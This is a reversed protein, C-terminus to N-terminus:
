GGQDTCAGVIAEALAFHPLRITLKTFSERADTQVPCRVSGLLTDLAAFGADCDSAATALSHVVKDLPLTRGPHSSACANVFRLMYETVATGDVGSTLPSGVRIPPFTGLGPDVLSIGNTTTSLSTLTLQLAHELLVLVAAINLVNGRLQKSLQYPICDVRLPEAVVNDPSPPVAPVQIEAVGVGQHTMERFDLRRLQERVADDVHVVTGRAPTQSASPEAVPGASGAGAIGPGSPPAKGPQFHRTILRLAATLVGQTCCVPVTAPKASTRLWSPDTKHSPAIPLFRTQAGSCTARQGGRLLEDSLIAPQILSCSCFNVRDSHQAPDRTYQKKFGGSNSSLLSLLSSRDVSSAGGSLFGPFVTLHEDGVTIASGRNDSVHKVLAPVTGMGFEITSGDAALAASLPRRIQSSLGAVSCILVVSILVVFRYM